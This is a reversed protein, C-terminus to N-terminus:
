HITKSLQEIKKTSKYNDKNSEGWSTTMSSSEDFKRKNGIVSPIGDADNMADISNGLMQMSSVILNNNDLVEWLYLLYSEKDMFFASRLDLAKRPRNSVEGFAPKPRSERTSLENADDDNEGGRGM